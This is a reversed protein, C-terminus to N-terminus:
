NSIKDVVEVRVSIVKDAVDSIEKGAYANLLTATGNAQVIPKTPRGIVMNRLPNPRATSNSVGLGHIVVRIRESKSQDDDVPLIAVTLQRDTAKDVSVTTVGALPESTGDRDTVMCSIRIFKADAPVDTDFTWIQVGLVQSLSAVNADARPTINIPQAPKPEEARVIVALSASLIMLCAFTIRFM